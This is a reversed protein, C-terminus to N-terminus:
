NWYKILYCRGNCHKFWLEVYDGKVSVREAFRLSPFEDPSYGQLENGNISVFYVGDPLQLDDTCKIFKRM